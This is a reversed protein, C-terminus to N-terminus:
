MGFLVERAQRILSTMLILHFPISLFSLARVVTFHGVTIVVSNSNQTNSSESLGFPFPCIM